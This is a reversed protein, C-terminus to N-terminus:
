ILINFRFPFRLFFFFPLFLSDGVLFPLSGISLPLLFSLGFLSLLSPSFPLLPAPLSLQPVLWIVRFMVIYYLSHRTLHIRPVYIVNPIDRVIFSNIKRGEVWGLIFSSSSSFSFLRFFFHIPVFSPLPSPELHFQPPSSWKM